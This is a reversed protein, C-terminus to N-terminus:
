QHALEKFYFGTGRGEFLFVVDADAIANLRDLIQSSSVGHIVDIHDRDSNRIGELLPEVFDETPIVLLDCSEAIAQGLERHIRDSAEGLEIIGPFLVVKKKDDFIQLYDLAAQVGSPNSSYTSDVLMAGKKGFCIRFTGELSQLERAAEAIEKLTMGSAIAGGIAALLNSLNHEGSLNVLFRQREDRYHVTFGLHEPKVEVETAFIEVDKPHVSYRVKRGRWENTKLIVRPDDANIIAVGQPPLAEILEFKASMTGELSGFLSLHQENVSTWIGIDPKVMECINAIESDRYAGMEIVLVDHISDLNSIIQRAIAVNINVGGETSFVHYKTKLLDSLFTKTSTKGYSGTIGIVHKPSFSARKATAKMILKRKAFESPLYIFFMTASVVLPILLRDSILYLSIRNSLNISLGFGEEQIGKIIGGLHGQLFLLTALLGFSGAYALVAKKTLIPRKLKRERVQNMVLISLAFFGGLSLYPFISQYWPIRWILLLYGILVILIGFGNQILFRRGRGTRFFDLYRDLRYEKLQWLHINFSVGQITSIGWFVFQM